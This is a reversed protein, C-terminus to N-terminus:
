LVSQAYINLAKPHEPTLQNNLLLNQLLNLTRFLTTFDIQCDLIAKCSSLVEPAEPNLAPLLGLVQNIQDLPANQAKPFIQCLSVTLHLVKLKVQPNTHFSKLKLLFIVILGNLKALKVNDLTPQRLFL